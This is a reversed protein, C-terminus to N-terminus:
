RARLLRGFATGIGTISDKDRPVREFHARTLLRVISGMTVMSSYWLPSAM